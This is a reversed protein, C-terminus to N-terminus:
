RTRDASPGELPPSVGKEGVPICQPAGNRAEQGIDTAGRMRAAAVVGLQVGNM